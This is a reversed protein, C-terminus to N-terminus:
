PTEGPPVATGPQGLLRAATGGYVKEVTAAPLGIREIMRDHFQKAPILEELGLIDTGFLVKDWAGEWFLQYRFFDPTKNLRWGGTCAGTLDVYCNPHMRALMAAEDHWPVGLHAAVINLRPFARLVPDLCVPRMWNSNVMRGKEMAIRMLIGTHALLPLGSAEMREYVPFYEPSDYPGLPNIIKFARFGARACEDVRAPEDSGLEILAFPVISAPFEEAGRLIQENSAHGFAAGAPCLCIQDIGAQPLLEVLQAFSGGLPFHAHFDIVM